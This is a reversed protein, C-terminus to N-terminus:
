NSPNPNQQGMSLTNNTWHKHYGSTGIAVKKNNTWHQHYGSTGIAVCQIIQETNITVPLVM